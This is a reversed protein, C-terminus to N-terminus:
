GFRCVYMFISVHSGLNVFIVGLIEEWEGDPCDMKKGDCLQWVRICKGNVACIRDPHLCGVDDDFTYNNRPKISTCNM